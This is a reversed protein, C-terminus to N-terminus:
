PRQREFGAWVCAGLCREAADWVDQSAAQGRGGVEVGLGILLNKYVDNLLQLKKGKCGKWGGAWVM